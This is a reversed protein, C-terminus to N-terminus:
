RAGARSRRGAGQVPSRPAQFRGAMRTRHPLCQGCSTRGLRCKRGRDPPYRARNQWCSRVRRGQRVGPRSKVARGFSFEIRAKMKGPWPLWFTPMPLSSAAALAAARSTNSSTSSASPCFSQAIMRSPGSSWSVSVSFAWGAIMALAMAVRRTSSFSNPTESTSLPSQTAPCLRPSYVASAAAPANESASVARSSLSRPCAICAATGTPTPAIHASSPASISLAVASAAAAASPSTHSTALSLSGPCTTRDPCM